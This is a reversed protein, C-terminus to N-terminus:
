AAQLVIGREQMTVVRAPAEALKAWETRTLTSGKPPEQDRHVFECFLPLFFTGFTEESVYGMYPIEGNRFRAWPVALGIEGPIFHRPMRYGQMFRGFRGINRICSQEVIKGKLSNLGAERIQREELNLGEPSHKQALEVLKLGAELSCFPWSIEEPGTILHYHSGVECRHLLFYQSRVTM